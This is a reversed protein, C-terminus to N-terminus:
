RCHNRNPVWSLPQQRNCAIGFNHEDEFRRSSCSRVRNGVTLRLTQPRMSTGQAPLHLLRIPTGCKTCSNEIHNEVHDAKPWFRKLGNQGSCALCTQPLQAQARGQVRERVGRRGGGGPGFEWPSERVTWFEARKNERERWLQWEKKGRKPTKENNKEPTM